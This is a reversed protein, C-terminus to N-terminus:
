DELLTERTYSMRTSEYVIGNKKVIRKMSPEKGLFIGYCPIKIGSVTKNLKYHRQDDKYLFGAEFLLKSNKMKM